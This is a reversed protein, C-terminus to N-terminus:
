TLDRGFRVHLHAELWTQGFVINKLIIVTTYSLTQNSVSMSGTTAM